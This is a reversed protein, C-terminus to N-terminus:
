LWQLNTSYFLSMSTRKGIWFPTTPTAAMHLISTELNENKNSQNATRFYQEKGGDLLVKKKLQMSLSRISTVLCSYPGSINHVNECCDDLTANSCYEFLVPIVNNQQGLVVGYGQKRIEGDEGICEDAQLSTYLSSGTVLSHPIQLCGTSAFFVTQRLIIGDVCVTYTVSKLSKLISLIQGENQCYYSNVGSANYSDMLYHFALTSVFILYMKTTGDLFELEFKFM